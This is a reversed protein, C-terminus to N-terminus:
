KKYRIVGHVIYREGDQRRVVWEDYKYSYIIRIVADATNKRKPMLSKILWRDKQTPRPLPYIHSNDICYKIKSHSNTMASVM